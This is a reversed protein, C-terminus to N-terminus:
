FLRRLEQYVSACTMLHYVMQLLTRGVAVTARAKGRRSALRQYLARLYSGKKKAAGRAAQV